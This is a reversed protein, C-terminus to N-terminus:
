AKFGRAQLWGLGHDVVLYEPRCVANIWGAVRETDSDSLPCICGASGPSYARNADSHIGIAERNNAKYKAQIDIAIYISGIAEWYGREVPGIDYVGEPLPACSGSYDNTPHIVNTGPAGSLCLVRDVVEKGKLWDLHFLLCGWEDRKGASTLRLSFTDAAPLSLPTSRIPRGDKLIKCHEKFVVWTNRETGNATTLSIQKGSADRGLAFRYHGNQDDAWSGIPFSRGAKVAFKENDNLDRSQLTSLKFFTDKTIELSHM